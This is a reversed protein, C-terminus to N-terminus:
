VVQVVLDLATISFPKKFRVFRVALKGFSIRRVLLRLFHGNIELIKVGNEKKLVVYWLLKYISQLTAKGYM